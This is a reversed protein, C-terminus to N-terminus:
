AGWDLVSFMRTKGIKLRHLNKMILRALRKNNFLKLSKRRGAAAVRQRLEEHALWWRTKDRLEELTSWYAMEQDELFVDPLGPVRDSLMFGGSAACEIVRRNIYLRADPRVTSGINVRAAAYCGAMREQSRHERVEAPCAQPTPYGGTGNWGRHWRGYIHAHGLDAVADLQERRSAWVTPWMSRDYLNTAAISIDCKESLTPVARGHRNIDCPTFGVMAPVDRASYWPISAGCCSVGMTFYRYHECQGDDLVFPDDISQSVVPVGSARLAQVFPANAEKAGWWIVADYQHEALWRLAKPEVAASYVKRHKRPNPDRKFTPLYDVHAGLYEFGRVLSWLSQDVHLGGLILVRM